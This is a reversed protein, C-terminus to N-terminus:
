PDDKVAKKIKYKKNLAICVECTKKFNRTYRTVCRGCRGRNRAKERQAKKKKVQAEREETTRKARWAKLYARRDRYTIDVAM